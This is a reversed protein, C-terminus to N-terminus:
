WDLGSVFLWFGLDEDEGEIEGFGAENLYITYVEGVGEKGHRRGRGWVLYFVWKLGACGPIM